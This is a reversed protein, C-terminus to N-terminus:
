SPVRMLWEVFEWARVEMWNEKLGGMAFGVHGGRKPIELYLYKSAKAIEVPFCEATLLPDNAANVLLSPVAINKLYPKCSAQRYFDDSDKFGHLPATYCNNFEEFSSIADLKSADIDSPYLKSKEALKRKLKKLFRNRYFRNGPDDMIRGGTPLDCPVSFTVSGKVEGPVKDGLEGLYKLTFSGGMSFGILVITKYGLRIGEHVLSALDATDGHHYFRALKNLEGSCSRCNWAVADWGRKSFYSAVGKSYHRTSNGELGHSIIVLKDHKERKHKMWDLDVFDGDPLELRTRTYDGPVKRFASPVITELHKHCLYWVPKYTSESILPV